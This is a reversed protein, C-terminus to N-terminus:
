FFFDKLAKYKKYHRMYPSYKVNSGFTSTKSFDVDERYSKSHFANSPYGPELDTENRLVKGAGESRATPRSRGSEGMSELFSKSHVRHRSRKPM